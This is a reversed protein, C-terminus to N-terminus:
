ATALGRARFPDAYVAYALLGVATWFLPGAYPAELFVNFASAAGVYVVIATLASCVARDRPDTRVISAQFGRRVLDGLLVLVVLFPIFGIRYAIAVFSNHPAPLDTEPDVTSRPVVSAPYPDFGAGFLPSDISKALVAKWFDLRYRANPDSTSTVTKARALEQGLLASQAVTSTMLVFGCVLIAVTGVIVPATLRRAFVVAAAAAFALWASRHNVLILSVLFPLACAIAVVPKVLGERSAAALMLPAIGFALLFTHSAIRVAGTSTAVGDGAQGALVLLLALASGGLVAFFWARYTRGLDTVYAAIFAFLAYLILLTNRASLLDLDATQVLVGVLAPVLMVLLLIALFRLARKRGAPDADDSGLVFRMVVALALLALLPETVYLPGVQHYTLWRGNALIALFWAILLLEPRRVAWALVVVSVVAAVILPAAGRAVSAGALLGLPIALFIWLDPRGRAPARAVTSAFALQRSRLM